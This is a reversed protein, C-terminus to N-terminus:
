ILFMETKKKQTKNYYDVCTKHSLFDNVGRIGVREIDKFGMMKMDDNNRTYCALTLPM